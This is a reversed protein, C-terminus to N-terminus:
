CLFAFCVKRDHLELEVSYISFIVIPAFHELHSAENSQFSIIPTRMYKMKFDEYVHKQFDEYTPEPVIRKVSLCVIV